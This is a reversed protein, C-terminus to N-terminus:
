QATRVLDNFSVTQEEDKFVWFFYLYHRQFICDVFKHWFSGRTRIAYTCLAGFVGSTNQSIFDLTGVVRGKEKIKVM